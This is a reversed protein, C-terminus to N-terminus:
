LITMPTIPFSLNQKAKSRPSHPRINYETSSDFSSYFSKESVTLRDAENGKDRKRRIKSCHLRSLKRWYQFSKLKKKAKWQLKFTSVKFYHFGVSGWFAHYYRSQVAYRKWKIPRNSEIICSSLFLLLNFILCNKLRYNFHHLSRMVYILIFTQTAVGICCIKM